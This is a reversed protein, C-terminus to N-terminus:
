NCSGPFLPLYSRGVLLLCIPADHTSFVVTWTRAPECVCRCLMTVSANNNVFCSMMIWAVALLANLNDPEAFTSDFVFIYIVCCAVPVHVDFWLLRAAFCVLFLWADCCHLSAFTIVFCVILLALSRLSASWLRPYARRPSAFCAFCFLVYLRELHLLMLSVVLCIVCACCFLIFAHTRALTLALALAFALRLALCDCKCTANAHQVQM